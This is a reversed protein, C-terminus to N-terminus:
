SNETMTTEQTQCKLAGARHILATVITDPESQTDLQGSKEKKSITDFGSITLTTSQNM